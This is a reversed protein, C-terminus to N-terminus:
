VMVRYNILWYLLYQLVSRYDRESPSIWSQDDNLLHDFKEGGEQKM